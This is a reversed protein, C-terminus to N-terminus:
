MKKRQTDALYFKCAFNVGDHEYLSKLMGEDLASVKTSTMGDSLVSVLMKMYPGDLPLHQYKQKVTVFPKTIVEYLVSAYIKRAPTIEQGDNHTMFVLIREAKTNRVIDGMADYIATIDSFIVISKRHHFWDGLKIFLKM